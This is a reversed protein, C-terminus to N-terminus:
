RSTRFSRFQQGATDWPQSSQSQTPHEINVESVNEKPLEHFYPKKRGPVKLVLPLVDFGTRTEPPTCYKKKLLYETLELNTPDGLIDGSEEDQYAAYRVCQSSWFRTGFPEGPAQPQFVTMVSQINTGATAIKLHEEVEQFITRAHQHPPLRSSLSHEVFYTRHMQSLKEM